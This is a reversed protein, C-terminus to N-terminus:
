IKTQKRMAGLHGTVQLFIAKTQDKADVRQKSQDKLGQKGDSYDGFGAKGEVWDSLVCDISKIKNSHGDYIKYRNHYLVEPAAAFGCFLQGVVQFLDM